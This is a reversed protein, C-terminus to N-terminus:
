KQLSVDLNMPSDTYLPDWSKGNIDVALSPPAGVQLRMRSTARWEQSAGAALIGSYVTKGDAEVELWCRGRARVKVVLGDAGKVVVPAMLRGGAETRVEGREVSLTPAPPQVKAPDPQPEVKPAQTDPAAATTGPRSSVPPTAGHNGLSWFGGVAAALVVAGGAVWYVGASRRGPKTAVARAKAQEAPRPAAPVRVPASPAAEAVVPPTAAPASSQKYAQVLAEGDLGLFNGYTRIFGKLYVEAPVLHYTNDEIAEIYKSRIKTSEAVQEVTMGQRERETRLLTGVQDM